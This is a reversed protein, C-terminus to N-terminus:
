AAAKIQWSFFVSCGGAVERGGAWITMGDGDWLGGPTFNDGQYGSVAGEEWFM